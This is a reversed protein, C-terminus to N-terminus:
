LPFTFDNLFPMPREKSQVGRSSREQVVVFTLTIYGKIYNLLLPCKDDLLMPLESSLQMAISRVEKTSPDEPNMASTFGM